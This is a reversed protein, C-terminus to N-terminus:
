CEHDGCAARQVCGAGATKLDCGDGRQMHRLPLQGAQRFVHAGDGLLRQRQRDEVGANRRNAPARQQEVQRCAGGGREKEVATCLLQQLLDAKARSFQTLFYRDRSWQNPDAGSLLLALADSDGGFFRSRLLQALQNQQNGTQRDLRQNQADLDAIQSKLGARETGLEHLRRNADSIASEIDRLQDAVYTKSEEAAAMERRLSEIRGKLDQLEGKKVDVSAAFATSAVLSSAFLSVHFTFRALRRLISM